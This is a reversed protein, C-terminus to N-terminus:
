RGMKRRREAVDALYAEWPETFDRPHAIGGHRALEGAPWPRIFRSITHGNRTRLWISAGERSRGDLVLNLQYLRQSCLRSDHVLEADPGPARRLEWEIGSASWFGECPLGPDLEALPHRAPRGYPRAPDAIDLWIGEAIAEAFEDHFQFTYHQHTELLPTSYRQMEYHHREALWPSKDVTFVWDGAARPPRIDYPLTEGRAARIADLGEFTVRGLSGGGAVTFYIATYSDDRGADSALDLGGYALRPPAVSDATLPVKVARATLLPRSGSGNGMMRVDDGIRIKLM